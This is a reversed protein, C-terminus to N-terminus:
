RREDFHFAVPEGSSSGGSSSLSVPEVASSLYLGTLAVVMAIMIHFLTLM